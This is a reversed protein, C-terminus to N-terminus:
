GGVIYGTSKIYHIVEEISTLKEKIFATVESQTGDVKNIRIQIGFLDPKIECLWLEKDLNASHQYVGLPGNKDMCERVLAGETGHKTIAHSNATNLMANAIFFAGIGLALIVLVLPFILNPKKQEYTITTM